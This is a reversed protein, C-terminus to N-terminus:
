IGLQQAVLERHHETDGWALESKKQRRYYLQIKYDKTFGIGGHIQQGHAVVRRSADSVWAKAMNVQMQKDEQDTNIAWAAKYMIFRSGDVDTLMDACKHQIAQFSGIPRGFQVREKAYDVSIEFDMQALGVLYAAEGVTYKQLVSEIIAWGNGEEGLLSGKANNLKVECQKDRAITLLQEIEVGDQDTPVIALTTGKQSKGAVIVYDAVNADYIFLKTGNFTVEDGNVEATTDIGEEDFRASPETLGLTFIAEGSAIKPLYEKKQDESGAEIIPVAGGLVSSMFPGPVLARGFEELLVCLDLFDFGAGGHEEPILLGQWGQEAMKKWLDPSYGLEDEEMERVLTEPCENELFERASNKLLEQTETLSLDMIRVKIENKV